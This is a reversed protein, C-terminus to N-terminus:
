FDITCGGYVAAGPALINGSSRDAVYDQDTLNEVRLHLTLTDNVEYRAFFRLTCYSDLRTSDWDRRGAAAALGVGTTLGSLPSTHIEASWVQRVSNPIAGGDQQHPQTYTWALKYGSDWADGLSGSLALEVGQSTWRQSTNEYRYTNPADSYPLAKIGDAVQQWFYTLSITHTDSLDHEIGIDASWSTECDLGPNGYYTGWGSDYASTSRQFSSPGRYGRGASGFVRSSGHNFTYSSATRISPLAEYISSYDLRLSVTNTWEPIPSYLHEVALAYVNELNRDNNRHGTDYQSRTWRLAASTTHRPNWRLAHRWELQVNRLDQNYGHGLMNDAGYYGAMLSTTYNTALKNTVKATVLNTRFRFPTTSWMGDFLYASDYWADERRYTTSLTTSENLDYDLRIAQAYCEYRGAKSDHPRSGSASRIDNDTHEYTSSVFFHLQNQEGQAQINASYTDFSGAEQFISLTPAGEGRPTEMYLIGSIAGGGYGAGQCGRLIEVSGLDFLNARAALNPTVNGNGSSGSVLMGDIMPLLYSQSGMGRIVLNSVNGRGGLGGGPLAHVGPTSAAADSLTHIGQQRLVAVDLVSVSVGSQDYPLSIGEHASVTIPALTTTPVTDAATPAATSLGALLLAPVVRTTSGTPAKMQIRM